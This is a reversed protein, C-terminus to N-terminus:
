TTATNDRADTDETSDVVRFGSSYAQIDAHGAAARNQVFTNYTGISTASGDRKKSSLFLLRFPDDTGLGSPILSWDDPM